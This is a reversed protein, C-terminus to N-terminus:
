EILGGASLDSNHTLHNLLDVITEKTALGDSFATAGGCATGLLLAKQYDQTKMWGALFGAIMSDGAGVSNVLTGEAIGMRYVESNETILISGEKDLSVLVNRAGQKQLLQACEIIQSDNILTTNFISELEYKNPKILFPHYKLTNLLLKKEADIVLNIEKDRVTKIIQEYTNEPMCSPISGSLILFDGHNLSSTQTLLRQFDDSEIEPGKGNIESETDSKVKVNIRTMGKHVHIFDTQIGQQILMEKLQVGTFGATFGLACTKFGLENLVCSVNIGKGGAYLNEKKTRNTHGLQLHDVQITYDLAPNLTITYIM